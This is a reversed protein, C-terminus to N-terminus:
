ARRYTMITDVRYYAWGRQPEDPMRVPGASVGFGYVYCDGVKGSFKAIKGILTRAQLSAVEYNPKTAKEVDNWAFSDWQLLATGSFYDEVGTVTNGILRVRMYPSQPGVPIRTSVRGEAIELQRAIDKAVAEPDPLIIDTM